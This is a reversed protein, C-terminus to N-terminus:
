KVGVVYRSKAAPMATFAPDRGDSQDPRTACASWSRCWCNIHFELALVSPTETFRTKRVTNLKTVAPCLRQLSHFIRTLVLMANALGLAITHNREVSTKMTSGKGGNPQWPFSVQPLTQALPRRRSPEKPLKFATRSAIPSSVAAIRTSGTCPSAAYARSIQTEKLIARSRHHIQDTTSQIFNLATHASTTLQKGM